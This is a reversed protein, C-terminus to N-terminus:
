ITRSAVSQKNWSLVEGSSCIWIWSTDTGMYPMRVLLWDCCSGWSSLSYEEKVMSSMLLCRTLYSGLVSHLGFLSLFITCILIVNFINIKEAGTGITSLRNGFLDRHPFIHFMFKSGNHILEARGTKREKDKDKDTKDDGTTRCSIRRRGKNIRHSVFSIAPVHYQFINNPKWRM